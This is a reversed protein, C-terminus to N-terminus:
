RGKRWRRFEVAILVVGMAAIVALPVLKVIRESRKASSTKWKAVIEMDEVILLEKDFPEGTKEDYWGVFVAAETDEFEPLQELKEGEFVVHYVYWGHQEHVARVLHYEKEELWIQKLFEM